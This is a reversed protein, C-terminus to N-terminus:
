PVRSEATAALTLHATWARAPEPKVRILLIVQLANNPSQLTGGFSIRPGTLVLLPQSTDPVLQRNFGLANVVQPSVLIGTTRADAVSLESL